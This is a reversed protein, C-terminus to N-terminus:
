TGNMGHANQAERRILQLALAGCSKGESIHPNKKGIFFQERLECFCKERYFGSWSLVEM